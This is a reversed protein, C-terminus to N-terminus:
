KIQQQRGSNPKSKVQEFVFNGILNVGPFFLEPPKVRIKNTVKLAGLLNEAPCRSFGSEPGGVAKQGYDEM